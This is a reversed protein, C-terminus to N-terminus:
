DDNDNVVGSLFEAQEVGNPAIDQLIDMFNKGVLRSVRELMMPIPSSPEHKKYYNSILNLAKSVDQINNISPIGAVKLAQKTDAQGDGEADGEQDVSEEGANLGLREVQGEVVASFEQLLTSLEAFSAADNVGVKETIFAEMQSLNDQSDTIAQAIALVVEPDCEQFTADIVAIQPFETEEDGEGVLITGNAILIDRLSFRGLMKSEILLSKQLPFLFVDFDCLTMLSNIRETPDNEDDPDLQPHVMEWFKEITQRLLAMGDALGLIGETETLARVFNMCVRLDRTRTLLQESMKKVERWNPPEAEIVSDGMTQEAKGQVEQELAMFDADYELDEGCVADPSIETLFSDIDLTVLDDEKL